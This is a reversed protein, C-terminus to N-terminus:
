MQKRQWKEISIFPFHSSFRCPFGIFGIDRFPSTVNMHNYFQTTTTHYSLDYILFHWTATARCRQAFIFLACVFKLRQRFTTHCPCMTRMCLQIMLLICSKWFPLRMEVSYENPISEINFTNFWWCDMAVVSLRKM